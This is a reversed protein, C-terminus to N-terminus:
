RQRDSGLHAVPQSPHPHLSLEPLAREPPSSRGPPPAGLSAAPRARSWVETLAMNWAPPELVKAGYANM